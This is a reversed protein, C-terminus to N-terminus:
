TKVRPDFVSNQPKGITLKKFDPHLPNILFNFEERIITGPVKLIM